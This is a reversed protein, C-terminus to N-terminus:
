LEKMNAGAEEIVRYGYNKFDEWRYYPALDDPLPLEVEEENFLMKFLVDANKRSKYFVFQLNSAMPINWSQWVDKIQLPDDVVKAWDGVRLLNLFGMICGDHGFRLRVSPRGAAVATEAAELIERLMPRPIATMHGKSRPDPGKEIYYIYNDCEWLRCLEDIPFLEMFSEDIGTCPMHVAVYYLNQEFTLPDCITHPYGADTFIRELFATTDIRQECFRRWEKRWPAQPTKFIYDEETLDPNSYTYPNLYSMYIEGVDRRIELSPDEEKLGESFAAMSMVCRNVVTSVAEIRPRSRFIEPFNRYMRKALLKHQKQGESSLDGARDKLQPYIARFRNRADIGASTLKGDAYARDLVEAVNDYQDNRLIYRAGHRGYHSIHFPEYGKPAPTQRRPDFRYMYYVGGAKYPDAAIEDYASQSAASVAVFAGLLTLFLRKAIPFLNM